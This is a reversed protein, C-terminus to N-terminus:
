YSIFTRLIENSICYQVEHAGESTVPLLQFVQHFRARETARDLNMVEFSGTVSIMYGGACEQCDVTDLLHKINVIPLAQLKHLIAEKGQVEEEDMRVMSEETYLSALLNRNSDYLHYYYNSFAQGVASAQKSQTAALTFCKRMTGIWMGLDVAGDNNTIFPHKLLDDASPRKEADKQLCLSIFDCFEQSFQDAPLRPSEENQIQNMLDWYGKGLPFPFKGLACEMMSLGFAWIDAKTDYTQGVLREPSMYIATGVFTGAMARSATLETSEGFDSIKVAGKLDMLINGPKLDRHIMKAHHMSSLGSLIQKSMNSLVPEPIPGTNKVVDALSGAEMNEMMLYIAGNHFFADYFTVFYPSKFEHLARLEKIIQHRRTKDAINIAKLAMTRKTPNHMVLQVFGTAGRGLVKLFTFEEMSYRPGESAPTADGDASPPHHPSAKIGQQGIQFDAVSFTGSKSLKFTSDLGDEVDVILPKKGM